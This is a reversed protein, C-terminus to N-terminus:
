LKLTAPFLGAAQTVLDPTILSIFNIRAASMANHSTVRPGARDRRTQAKEKRGAETGGTVRQRGELCGDRTPGRQAGSGGSLGWGALGGQKGSTGWTRCPSLFVCSGSELSSPDSDLHGLNLFTWSDEPSSCRFGLSNLHSSALRGM